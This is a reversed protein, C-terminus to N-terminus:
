KPVYNHFAAYILGSLIETCAPGSTEKIDPIVFPNKKDLRSHEFGSLLPGRSKEWCLPRRM